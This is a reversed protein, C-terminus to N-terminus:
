STAGRTAPRRVRPAGDQKPLSNESPPTTGDGAITRDPPSAPGLVALLDGIEHASLTPHRFHQHEDITYHTRRGLKRRTIFGGEELDKLIMLAARETIGVQTAIDSVRVDGGRAIVLLVHGHNTLLTWSPRRSPDHHEM